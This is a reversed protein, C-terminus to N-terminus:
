IFAHRPSRNCFEKTCQLKKYAIENLTIVEHDMRWNYTIHPVPRSVFLRRSFRAKRWTFRSSFHRGAISCGCNISSCSWYKSGFYGLKSSATKQNNQLWRTVLILRQALLPIDFRYQRTQQDIVEEQETLLDFLFTSIHSQHLIDAVFKNRSSLRSSGSGHAFVVLSASQPVLTLDGKIQSTGIPIM